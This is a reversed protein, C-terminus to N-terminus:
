YFFYTCQQSNEYKRSFIKYDLIDEQVVTHSSRRNREFRYDAKKALLAILDLPKYLLYVVSSFLLNFNYKIQM